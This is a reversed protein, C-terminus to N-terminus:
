KIIKTVFLLHNSAGLLEKNKCHNFHWQLYNEYAVDSMKEIKEFLLESFGDSAIISEIKLGSEELLRKSEDVTFFIFPRNWVRQTNKDYAGNEFYNFNYNTETIPVMDHNIFAIFIHAGNKCVRIVDNLTKLQDEKNSLHYLPGFLLVVDFYNDSLIELELSSLQKTIINKFNYNKLNENLKLFNNESPEFAYIESVKDAYNITYVGTGAGIDLMKTNSNIVKDIERITTFKEVMGFKSKLRSDEDFFKYLMQNRQLDDDINMVEDFSLDKSM